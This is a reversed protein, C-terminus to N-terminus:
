VSFLFKALELRMFERPFTTRIMISRERTFRQNSTSTNTDMISVGDVGSDSRSQFKGQRRQGCSRILLVLADGVILDGQQHSLEVGQVLEALLPPSCRPAIELAVVGDVQDGVAGLPLLNVGVLIVVVVVAPIVGTILAIVHLFVAESVLLLLKL